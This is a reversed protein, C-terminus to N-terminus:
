EEKGETEGCAEEDGETEGDAEERQRSNGGESAERPLIEEEGREELSAAGEVEREGQHADQIARDREEIVRPDDLRHRVRQELCELGLLQAGVGPHEDLAVVRVRM